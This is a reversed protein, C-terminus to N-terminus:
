GVKPCATRVHFLRFFLCFCSAFHVRRVGMRLSRFRVQLAASPSARSGAGTGSRFGFKDHTELARLDCQPGAEKLNLTLATRLHRKTLM